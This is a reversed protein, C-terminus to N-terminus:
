TSSGLSPRLRESQAIPVGPLDREIVARVTDAVAASFPGAFLLSPQVLLTGPRARPSYEARSQTTQGVAIVTRAIGFASAMMALTIALM